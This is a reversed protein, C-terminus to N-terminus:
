RKELKKIRKKLAEIENKGDSIQSQNATNKTDALHKMGLVMLFIVAHILYHINDANM